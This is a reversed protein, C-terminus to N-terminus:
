KKFEAVFLLGDPSSEYSILVTSSLEDRTIKVPVEMGTKFNVASVKLLFRKSYFRAVASVGEPGIAKFSFGNVDQEISDIRSSAAILCLDEKIKSLDYLL